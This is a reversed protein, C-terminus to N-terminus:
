PTKIPFRITFQSGKGPTSDVSIMGGLNETVIFYSVSLGLGTGLNGKKTTFFPEFIRRKLDDDMGPGNDAIEIYVSHQDSKIHLDFQPKRVDATELMAHAGNKLIILFEQQIQGAECLFEPTPEHYHRQILIKKFDFHKKLDYDNTALDITKDM